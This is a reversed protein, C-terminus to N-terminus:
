QRFERLMARVADYYRMGAWCKRCWRHWAAEVREGCVACRQRQAAHPFYVVSGM